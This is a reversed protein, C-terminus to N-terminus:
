NKVETKTKFGKFERKMLIFSLVTALLDAFPASYWVGDLGMFCPLILLLPVLFILQRSLSVVMSIGPKGVSQFYSTSLISVAIFPWVFVQIRLAYVSLSGVYETGEFLSILLTPFAICIIAGVILIITAFIVSVRFAEKVRGFSKAGYNYGFIPQVGNNIGYVSMLFIQTIMNIIGYVAIYDDSLSVSGAIIGQAKLLNNYLVGIGGSVLQLLFQPLGIWLIPMVLRSDLIFNKFRLKLISHKSTYYFIVAGAAIAQALVTAYAAGKIGLHFVGIFVPDLLVNLGAGLAMVLMSTKASGEARINSSMGFSIGLFVLGGCVIRLYDRTLNYTNESAGFLNLLPKEFIITTIGFLLSGIVIMVFCNGLVKEAKEINNEGLHISILSTAGSSLLLLFALAVLTYPNLLTMAAMTLNNGAAKDVMMSLFFRDVMTYLATALMGGIAPISMNLVLKRINENGLTIVKENM